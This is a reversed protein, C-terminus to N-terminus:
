ERRDVMGVASDRKAALAGEEGHEFAGAARRDRAMGRHAAPLEVEASQDGFGVAALNEFALPPAGGGSSKGEAGTGPALQALPAACVEECRRSGTRSRTVRGSGSPSRVAAARRVRPWSTSTAGSM